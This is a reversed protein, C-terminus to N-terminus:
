ASGASLRELYLETQVQGTIAGRKLSESVVAFGANSLARLSALNDRVVHARLRSLKLHDFAIVCLGSAIQRGFGKGQWDKEGILFTIEASGRLPDIDYISCYGIAQGQQEVVMDLEWPDPNRVLDLIEETTYVTGPDDMWKVNDHDNFWRTLLPVDEPRDIRFRIEAFSFQFRARSCKGPSDKLLDDIHQPQV